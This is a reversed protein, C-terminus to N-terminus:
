SPRPPRQLCAAPIIVVLMVRYPGTSRLLVGGERAAAVHCCIRGHLM